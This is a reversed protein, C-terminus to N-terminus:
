GLTVNIVITKALHSQQQACIRKDGSRGGSLHRTVLADLLGRASSTVFASRTVGRLKAEADISEFLGSDFTLNVRATRGSDPLLQTM